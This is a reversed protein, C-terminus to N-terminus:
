SAFQLHLTKHSSDKNANPNVIIAFVPNKFAGSM